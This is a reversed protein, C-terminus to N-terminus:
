LNTGQAKATVTLSDGNSVSKTPSLVARLLLTGGGYAANLIGVEGVTVSGTVSFVNSLQLTDGSKTTTEATPTVSLRDLGNGTTEAILGTQSAGFATTSTGVALYTFAATGGLGGLRNTIAALGADTINAMNIWTSGGFNM